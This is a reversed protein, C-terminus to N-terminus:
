KKAPPVKAELYERTKSPFRLVNVVKTTDFYTIKLTMASTNQPVQLEFNSAGFTLKREINKEFGKIENELSGKRTCKPQSYFFQAEVIVTGNRSEISGDPQRVIVKFKYPFGPKLKLQPRQVEINFSGEKRVTVTKEATMLKKTLEEEFVVELKVIRDRIVTMIKLDQRLNIVLSKKASIDKVKFNNEYDLKNHFKSDYVKATVTAKGKVFEGFNYKAYVSIILKQESLTVFPKTDAFVEFRPLIYEKVEFTRKTVKPDDDVQVSLVWDGLFPDETISHDGEFVFEDDKEVIKDYVVNGVADTIKVTMQKYHYPKTEANLVLVWFQIKDIPKYIAKDSQILVSCKKTITHIVVTQHFTGSKVILKYDQIIPNESL